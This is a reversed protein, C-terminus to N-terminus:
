IGMDPWFFDSAGQLFPIDLQDNFLGPVALSLGEAHSPSGQGPFNSLSTGEAQAVRREIAHLLKRGTEPLHAAVPRVLSITSHVRDDPVDALEAQGCPVLTTLSMGHVPIATASVLLTNLLFIPWRCATESWISMTDRSFDRAAREVVDQDSAM